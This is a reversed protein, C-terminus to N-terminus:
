PKCLPNLLSSKIYKIIYFLKRPLTIFTFCATFLSSCFRWRHGEAPSVMSSWATSIAAPPPDRIISRVYLVGLGISGTPLLGRIHYGSFRSSLTPKSPSRERANYYRSCEPQQLDQDYIQRHKCVLHKVCNLFLFLSLVVM